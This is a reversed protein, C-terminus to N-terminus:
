EIEWRIRKKAAQYSPIAGGITSACLTFFLSILIDIPNFIPSVYISTLLYILVSVSYCLFIGGFIGLLAGLLGMLLSQYLFLRTIQSNNAGIAKLIFIEKLSDKVVVRTSHYMGFIMLCYIFISLMLLSNTTRKILDYIFVNMQNERQVNLGEYSNKIYSITEDAKKYDKLKLEIISYYNTLNPRILDSLEINGIICRDYQSSTQFIGIIRVKYSFNDYTLNIYIPLLKLTINFISALEKGIIIESSNMYIPNKIYSCSTYRLNKFISYNLGCFYANMESNNISIKIYFYKQPCLLEINSHYIETSINKSILSNSYCTSSSNSIILYESYQYKGAMLGIQYYFGTILPVPVIILAVSIAVGLITAYSRRKRNLISKISLYIIVGIEIQFVSFLYIIATIIIWTIILGGLIEGFTIISIKLIYKNLFYVISIISPSLVFGSNLLMIFKVKKIVSIFYLIIIWGITFISEGIIFLQPSFYIIISFYTINLEFKYHYFLEMLIPLTSTSLILNLLISGIFFMIIGHWCSKSTINNRYIRSSFFLAGIFKKYFSNEKKKGINNNIINKNTM